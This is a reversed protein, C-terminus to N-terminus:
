VNEIQGKKAMLGSIIAETYKRRQEQLEPPTIYEPVKGSLINDRRRQIDQLVDMGVAIDDINNDYKSNNILDNFYPNSSQHMQLLENYASSNYSVGLNRSAAYNLNEREWEKTMFSPYDENFYQFMSRGDYRKREDALYTQVNQVYQAYPNINSQWLRDCFQSFKRQNLLEIEDKTLDNRYSNPHLINNIEKDTLTRGNYCSVIKMIMKINKEYLQQQQIQETYYNNYYNYQQYPNSYPNTYPNNGYQNNAYPNSYQITNFTNGYPNYYATAPLEQSQYGIPQYVFNNTNNPAYPNTGIPSINNQQYPNYGVPQPNNIGFQGSNIMTQVNDM